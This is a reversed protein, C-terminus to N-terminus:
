KRYVGYEKTFEVMTRVNEPKARDIAADGTLIFGGNKGAVDILKKCYAKVEDPRGTNLLSIPVNGAICATDGLVEKAKAMDTDDFLWVTKGKPIDKIIELRTNYAGEAFIFPVLGENVLGLIVKRLTPWYFRKYQEDSMFGDAGKHLPMFVLPRGSTRAGVVGMRIMLPTLREMAELLKDPQRYLDLMIGQTGRLTDALTDFPAKTSGGTLLPFGLDIVARECAAVAKRWRLADQGAAILAKLASQIEPTGYPVLYAGTFPMEVTNALSSLKKLSELAGFIRPLYVRMLFDSPDQILTDYEEAKMYEAEVCQYSADTATGRGPWLCLKYDLIEYARGPGPIASGGYADPQLDLIHNRWATSLKNYDYTAKKLTIGAHYSPFFGSNACVPVRDPVRLQIVDKIRIARDHYAKETEPTIFKVGQPSLWTKFMEEQKEEPRLDIWKDDMDSAEQSVVFLYDHKECYVYVPNFYIVCSDRISLYTTVLFPLLNYLVYVLWRVQM